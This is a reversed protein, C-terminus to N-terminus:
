RINIILNYPPMTVGLGHFQPPPLNKFEFSATWINLSNQRLPRGYNYVNEEIIIGIM